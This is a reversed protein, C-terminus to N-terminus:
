YNQVGVAFLLTTFNDQIQCEFVNFSLIDLYRIQLPCFVLQISPSRGM